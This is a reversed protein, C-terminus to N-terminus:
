QYQLRLVILSASPLSQTSTNPFPPHPLSLCPENDGREADCPVHVGGEMVVRVERKEDSLAANSGWCPMEAEATLLM